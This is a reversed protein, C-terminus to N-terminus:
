RTKAGAAPQEGVDPRADESRCLRTFIQVLQNIKKRRERADRSRMADSMSRDLHGALIVRAAEGLAAQAASVQLLVDVCDRDEDVMREIGGIQGAIRRLRSRAKLKTDEDM